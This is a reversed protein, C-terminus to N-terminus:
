LGAPLMGKKNVGTDRTGCSEQSHRLPVWAACMSIDHSFFVWSLSLLGKLYPQLNVQRILHGPFIMISTVEMCILLYIWERNSFPIHYRDELVAVQYIYPFLLNAWIAHGPERVGLDSAREQGM